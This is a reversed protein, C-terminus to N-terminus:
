EMVFTHGLEADGGERCGGEEGRDAKRRGLVGEEGGGGGGNLVAALAMAGDGCSGEQVGDRLRGRGRQEGYFVDGRRVRPM